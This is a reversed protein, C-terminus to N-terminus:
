SRELEEVAAQPANMPLHGLTVFRDPRERVVAALRDNALRALEVARAPEEISTAPATLTIVQVDIGAEDLDRLRHDIDRHGPVVVNYDGPSHLVPNGAADDTVRFASPGRRVADLYAPPFYHNHFDVVTGARM